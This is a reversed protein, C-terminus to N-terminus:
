WKWVHKKKWESKGIGLVCLTLILLIILILKMKKKVKGSLLLYKVKDESELHSYTFKGGM